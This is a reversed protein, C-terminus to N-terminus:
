LEVELHSTAPNVRVAIADLPRPPPGSVVKGARDYCGGHCPCKFQSAGPEWKVQCGLHSCTASLARYAGSEDKDIFVVTQKTTGYWGDDHREALVAAYPLAPPLDTVAIAKRWKRGAASAKPSLVLGALGALGAGILTSGALVFKSLFSRRDSM